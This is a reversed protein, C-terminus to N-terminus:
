AVRKGFNLSAGVQSIYFSVKSDEFTELSQLTTSLKLPVVKM